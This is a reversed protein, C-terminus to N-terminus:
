CCYFKYFTDVTIDARKCRPCEYHRSVFDRQEPGRYEATTVIFLPALDKQWDQNRDKMEKVCYPCYDYKDEPELQKRSLIKVNAM